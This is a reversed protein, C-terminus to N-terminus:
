RVEPNESSVAYGSNEGSHQHSPNLKSRRDHLAQEEVKIRYVLLFGNLISFVIAIEWAGFALPLLAIEGIVIMYNPHRCFRYPGRQILPEGPLTIIRTTWYEGLSAIVWVRAGQLILFMILWVLNVSANGDVLVLIALLWISHLAVFLPYHRRGVEHGGRALLKETNRRSLALEALRQAAVLGIIIYLVSM